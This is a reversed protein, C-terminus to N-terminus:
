EQESLERELEDILIRAHHRVKRDCDVIHIFITTPEQWEHCQNCKIPKSKRKM